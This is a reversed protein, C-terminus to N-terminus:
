AVLLRRIIAQGFYSTALTLGAALLMGLILVVVGESILMGRVSGRAAGLKHMTEIERRRLRLSLVFVLSITTLTGIGVVGVGLLVYGQVAFITAMLEEMVRLPRLVQVVEDPSAYRGMLLTRSREDRSVAIVASVPHDDLNGHFHFSDQNLPTIENYEVVAANATIRNGERELILDGNGSEALDRHGHGLGEVVWATKIDVFIAGDDPTGMPEAVGVVLLKLPYVGALEFVSEPPTILHDGPGLRLDHATQAGLVCEGLVGMARGRDMRMRRLDFYELTTGVVPHGAARFRVHLPIATALGSDAIRDVEENRMWEGAVTEFYLSSLVLELASGKAGVLLPTAAARATLDRASRSVLLQLCAPLFLLLAISSVLVITKGRHHLLYRVALYLSGRV